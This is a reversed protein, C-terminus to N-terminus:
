PAAVAQPDLLITGSRDILVSPHHEERSFGAEVRAVGGQFDGAWRYWPADILKGARNAFGLKWEPLKGNAVLARGEHFDWAASFQPAISLKGARDIYGWLKGQRVAALGESFGRAEDFEVSLVAKGEGDLYSWIRGSRVAALGEGFHTAEDYQVPIAIRGSADIFGWKKDASVLARGGQFESAYDFQAVVVVKGTKDIYGQKREKEFVALGERFGPSATSFLGVAVGPELILSRESARAEAFQPEIAIRGAKDLYGILKGQKIRALGEHFPGCETVGQPVAVAEKGAPDIFLWQKKIRVLALDESFEEAEDFRPAIRWVGAQDAYGYAKRDQSRVRWLGSGEGRPAPDILTSRPSKGNRDWLRVAGSSDGTAVTQGDPSMAVTYVTGPHTWTAAPEGGPLPYLKATHDSSGSVLTRGDAAVTLSVVMTLHEKYVRELHLDEVNWVRVAGRATEGPGRKIELGSSYLEGGDASFELARVGLETANGPGPAVSLLGTKLTKFKGRKMQGLLKGEPLSWLGIETDASGSALLKGDPSIALSLVSDRHGALTELLRGEPLQWLKITADGSGSALLKGDPSAALALVAEQHGELKAIRRGEPWSWLRISGDGTGTAVLQGGPIVAVAYVSETPGAWRAALRAQDVTWVLVRGDEYGAVLSKGDGTFQVSRVAPGGAACLGACAVMGLLAAAGPM